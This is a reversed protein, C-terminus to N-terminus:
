AENIKVQVGLERLIDSQTTWMTRKERAKAHNHGLLHLVGHVVLLTLESAV